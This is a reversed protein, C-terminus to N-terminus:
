GVSEGHLSAPKRCRSILRTPVRMLPNARRTPPTRRTGGVAQELGQHHDHSGSGDRQRFGDVPFYEAEGRQVGFQHDVTGHRPRRGTGSNAQACLYVKRTYGWREIGGDATVEVEFGALGDTKSPELTGYGTPATGCDAVRLAAAGPEDQRFVALTFGDANRPVNNVNRTGIEWAPALERQNGAAATSEVDPSGIRPPAAPRTYTEQANGNGDISVAWASTGAGNSARLCLLYGTHPALNGVSVTRDLLDIDPTFSDVERGADCASQVTKSTSQTTREPAASTAGIKNDSTPREPDAALNIEYDFGAKLDM